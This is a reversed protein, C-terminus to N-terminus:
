RNPTTKLGELCANQVNSENAPFCVHIHDDHGERYTSLGGMNKYDNFYIPAAQLANKTKLRQMDGESIPAALSDDTVKGVGGAQRFFALLEKTKDQDYNSACNKNKAKDVTCKSYSVGGFDPTQKMLRVDVCEGSGHEQHSYHETTEVITKEPTTDTAPQVITKQSIKPGLNKSWFFDGWQVINKVGKNESNFAHVASLFACASWPQAFADNDNAGKDSSHYHITNMPGYEVFKLEGQAKDYANKFAKLYGTEDDGYKPKLEAALESKLEADIWKPQDKTIVLKIVHGDLQEIDTIKLGPNTKKAAEYIERLPQIQDALLPMLSESLSCDSNDFFKKIVKSPDSDSVVNFVYQYTCKPPESVSIIKCCERALYQHDKEEYRINANKLFPELGPFQHLITPETLQYLFDGADKLMAKQVWGTHGKKAITSDSVSLKGLGNKSAALNRAAKENPISVVEVHVSDNPKANAFNSLTKLHDSDYHLRVISFAPLRKVRPENQKTKTDDKFNCSITPKSEQDDINKPQLCVNFPPEDIYAPPKCMSAGPLEVEKIIPAIQDLGNNASASDLSPATEQALPMAETTQDQTQAFLPISFCIAALLATAIAASCFPASFIRFFRVSFFRSIM